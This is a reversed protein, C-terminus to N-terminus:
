SSAAKRRPPASPEESGSTTKSQVSGDTEVHLKRCSEAVEFTLKPRSLSNAVELRKVEAELDQEAQNQDQLPSVAVLAKMTGTLASQAQLRVRVDVDKNNVIERGIARTNRAILALCEQDVAKAMVERYIPSSLIDRVTDETLKLRHALDEVLMSQDPDMSIKVIARCVLLAQMQKEDVGEAKLRLDTNETGYRM